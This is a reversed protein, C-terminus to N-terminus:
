VYDPFQSVYQIFQCYLKACEAWAQPNETWRWPAIVEGREMMSDISAQLKTYNSHAREINEVYPPQNDAANNTIGDSDDDADEEEEEGDMELVNARCM